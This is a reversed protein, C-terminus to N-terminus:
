LGHRGETVNGTDFDSVDLNILNSNYSLFMGSMDTVKATNFGSVDISTLGDCQAFMGEMNVVNKTDFNSIDLSALNSCRVFMHSMDTVNGTDFNGVNLNTLSSCDGFMHSMNTVNGTNFNSVDLDTLSRCDYFMGYMDTINRTDFNRLDVNTLRDCGSFMDSADTMGQVNIEATKIYSREWSWPARHDRSHYEDNLPAFNGTGEVTLKGDKDIVWTLNNYEGHAIDTDSFTLKLENESVETEEVDETTAVESETQQTLDEEASADENDAQEESTVNNDSNKEIVTSEEVVEGSDKEESVQETTEERVPAEETIEEEGSVMDALTEKAQVEQQTEDTQVSEEALVTMGTSTFLMAASLAMCLTTKAYKKMKHRRKGFGSGHIQKSDMKMNVTEKTDADQRVTLGGKGSGEDFCLFLVAIARLIIATREFESEESPTRWRCIASGSVDGTLFWSCPAFYADM